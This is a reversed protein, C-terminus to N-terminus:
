LVTTRLLMVLCQQANTLHEVYKVCIRRRSTCAMLFVVCGGKVPKTDGMNIEHQGFRM